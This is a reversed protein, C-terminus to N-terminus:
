YYDLPKGLFIIQEMEIGRAKAEQWIIRSRFTVAKEVDKSFKVLGFLALTKFLFEPILDVFKKLFNPVHKTLRTTHADLPIAFLSEFFYFTHNVPANGCYSCAGAQLKPEVAESMCGM